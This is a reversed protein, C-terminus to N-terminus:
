REGERIRDPRRIEGWEAEYGSMMGGVGRILDFALGIPLRVRSVIRRSQLSESDPRPLETDVYFDFVITFATLWLSV